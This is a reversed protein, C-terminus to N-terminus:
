ASILSRGLLQVFCVRFGAGDPPRARPEATARGDRGEGIGAKPRSAGARQITRKCVRIGLKLLEGRIRKAGWRPNRGAM